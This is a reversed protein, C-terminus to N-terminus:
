KAKGGDLVLLRRGEDPTYAVFPFMRREVCRVAAQHIEKDILSEDLDEPVQSKLAAIMSRGYGVIMAIQLIIADLGLENPLTKRRTQMVASMETLMEQMEGLLKPMHVDALAKREALEKKLKVLVDEENTSEVGNEM